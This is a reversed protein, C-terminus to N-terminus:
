YGFLPAAQGGELVHRRLEAGSWRREVGAEAQKILALLASNVPAKRGLRAALRVVEGNLHEAETARGAALDDYMSSRARPDIKQIRLFINKFVIDPSGIAHPLLGPPVPGLKAPAIGAAKLLDLTEMMSAAWVRRYDRDALEELLTRGSLANIANNLNILLKGWAVAIIDGTPDLRAPGNGLGAALARTAPRDEILIDGAVGKHWRGEGLYAINFPIVAQVIELKPLKRKLVDVNGLGNQFSIVMPKRKAHTAIQKAAAETVNSKVCLAVIDAKALAAPKTTMPLEGAPIRRKWGDLDSLILGHQGISRVLPDRGILSVDAGALHWAGGIFGGISGAGLIVIKPTEGM